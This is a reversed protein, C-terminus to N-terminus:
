WWRRRQWREWAPCVGGYRADAYEVAWAVQEEVPWPWPPAGHSPAHRQPLGYSDGKDGRADPNWSSESMFIGSLCEYEHSRGMNNLTNEVIQQVTLEVEPEPRPLSMVQGSVSHGFDYVIPEDSLPQPTLLVLLIALVMGKM